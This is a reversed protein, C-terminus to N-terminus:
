RGLLDPGRGAKSSGPDRSVAEEVLAPGPRPQTRVGEASAEAAHIGVAEPLPRGVLGVAEQRLAGRHAAPGGRADLPLLSAEVAGSSSRHRGQRDSSGALAGPQRRSAKGPAQRRSPKPGRSSVTEGLQRDGPSHRRLGRRGGGADNGRPGRGRGEPSPGGSSGADSIARGEGECPFLVM